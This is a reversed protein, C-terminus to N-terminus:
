LRSHNPWPPECNPSSHEFWEGTAKELWRPASDIQFLEYDKHFHTIIARAAGPTYLKKLIDEESTSEQHSTRLPNNWPSVESDANLVQLGAARAICHADVNLRDKHMLGVITYENLRRNLDCHESQLRWHGDVKAPDRHLIWDINEKMSITQGPQKNHYNRAFCYPNGCQRDFCKDMFASAFRALPDRLMVARIAGPDRFVQELGSSGAQKQSIQDLFYNPSNSTSANGSFVKRGFASWSSCANKEILCFAFKSPPHVVLGKIFQGEDVAKFSLPDHSTNAVKHMASIRGGPNWSSWINACVDRNFRSASALVTGRLHKLRGLDFEFFCVSGMLVFLVAPALAASRLSLM